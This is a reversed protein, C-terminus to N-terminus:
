GSYNMFPESPLRILALADTRDDASAYAYNYVLPSRSSYSVRINTFGFLVFNASSGYGLPSPLRKPLKSFKDGM